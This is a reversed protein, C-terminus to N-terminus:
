CWERADELLDHVADPQLVLNAVLTGIVSGAYVSALALPGSELYIGISLVAVLLLGAAIYPNKHLAM